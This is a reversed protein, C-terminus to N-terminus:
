LRDLVVDLLHLPSLQHKTCDAALKKVFAHNVSVDSVFATERLSGERYELARIGYTTYEGLDDSYLLEKVAIYLYQKM